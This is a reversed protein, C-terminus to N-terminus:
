LIVFPLIVRLGDGSFSLFESPRLDFDRPWAPARIESALQCELNITERTQRPGNIKPSWKEVFVALPLVGLSYHVDM